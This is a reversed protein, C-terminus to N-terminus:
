GGPYPRAKPEGPAPRRAGPRPGNYAKESARAREGPACAGPALLDLRVGPSASGARAAPGGRKKRPVPALNAYRERRRPGRVYNGAPPRLVQVSACCAGIRTAKRRGHRPSTRGRALAPLMRQGLVLAAPPGPTSRLVFRKM